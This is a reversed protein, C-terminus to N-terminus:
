LSTNIYEVLDRVADVDSRAESDVTNINPTLPTVAINGEKFVVYVDTDPEPALDRGYLWYYKVGRPDTREEPLQAYRLKAARVLRAKVRRKTRRPFNISVTDVGRPMGQRPVYRASAVVVSGIIELAEKDKLVEGWEGIYASYALAPMDLLAAQFAAGLTGSSLIVQLSTNDGLSVGSLVLHYRRGLGPTALYVTNSPTGSTALAKFSCLDAEYMRLPKHLTIGLGTASKPSEPAVVDVEGLATAFRYLLRLGPSHIGGDNTVFIVM